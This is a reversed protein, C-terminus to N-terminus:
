RWSSKRSESSRSSRATTILTPTCTWCGQRRPSRSGSRTSSLKTAARPSTRCPNSCMRVRPAHLRVVLRPRLLVVVPPDSGAEELLAVPRTPLALPLRQEQREGREPRHRREIDGTAGAVQRSVEGAPDGGKVLARRHQLDGRGPNRSGPEDLAVRKREGEGVPRKFADERAVEVAMELLVVADGKEGLRTPDRGLEHDDVGREALVDLRDFPLLSDQVVARAPLDVLAEELRLLEGGLEAVALDQERATPEDGNLRSRGCANTGSSETAAAHCRASGPTHPPPSGARTTAPGLGTSRGARM